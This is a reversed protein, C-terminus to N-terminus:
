RLIAFNAVCVDALKAAARGDCLPVADHPEARVTRPDEGLAHCRVGLAAAEAEIAPTDTVVAGAARLLSLHEVFDAAAVAVAGDPADWDAPAELALPALGALLEPRPPGTVVALVYHGRRLGYRQWVGRESALRACRRVADLRPEGVVHIREPAVSARLARADEDTPVLLLDALRRIARAAGDGGDGGVRVIAIGLRAAAIAGALAADDDSHVMLAVCPTQELEARIAEPLEDRRVDLRRVPASVGLKRLAGGLEDVGGDLVVQGFAGTDELAWVAAALQPLAAGEGAVHVVFAGDHRPNLEGGLAPLLTMRRTM